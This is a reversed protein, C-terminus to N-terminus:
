VLKEKIAKSVAETQSHVHLKDYINKIHSRVTELSISLSSGIMKYSNGKALSALIELQRETLDYRNNARGQMSSVVMRAILPSMPSGGELVEDIAAYLRAAIHKKLIYGSAGACIADFVHQSDEFITLMIIPVDKNVSRIKKVAEVGTMGPMNIDMLILGPNDVTLQQLVKEANFYSGTVCLDERMTVMAELSDKLLRNDEYIVVNVKM